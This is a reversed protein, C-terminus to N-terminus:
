PARAPVLPILRVVVLKLGGVGESSFLINLYYDVYESFGTIIDLDDPGIVGVREASV